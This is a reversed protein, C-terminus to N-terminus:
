EAHNLGKEVSSVKDPMNMALTAKVEDPLSYWVKAMEADVQPKYYNFLAMKLYRENNVRGQMIASEVDRVNM